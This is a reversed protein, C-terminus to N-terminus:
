EILIEEVATRVGGAGADESRLTILAQGFGANVV